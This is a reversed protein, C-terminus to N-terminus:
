HGALHGAGGWSAECREQLWTGGIAALRELLRGLAPLAAALDARDEAPLGALAEVRRRSLADLVERARVTSTLLVSHGDAASPSRGM